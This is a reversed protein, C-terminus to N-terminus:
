TVRGPTPDYREWARAEALGRLRDLGDWVDTFRTTLPALGIRLVDPRRFDVITSAEEILARSLRYAEHHCLAIHSGRRAPDPPSGLTFGLPQLWRDALRAGYSTLAVGKSRMRDMGAEELVSVGAEVATLGLVDPTGSLWRRIGAAPQWVPGMAFQDGNGFWGWVPPVLREQLERRVYLWAPAGPGGHLYKYTCGAAVDVDWDDLSVGVAGAAHSLDWLTLAGAGHAAATIEAAPAIAGSRYDVLSLAVLAVDRDLAAPVAGADDVLRITMGRAGSLGQLVYRDTSFNAEDTVIVMRGPRAEVAAAALKYLNITTSDAVLVQGPGAGLLAAGIRDGVRTPLDLWEAWSRVLGAGWEHRLVADMRVATRRPLRGLSNGDFYILREEAVVFEEVFDALPDAADLRQAEDRTV